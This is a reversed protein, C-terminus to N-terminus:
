DEFGFDKPNLEEFDDQTLELINVLGNIYFCLESKTLNLKKLRVKEQKILKLIKKGRKKPETSYIIGPIPNEPDHMNAIKAFEEEFVREFEERTSTRKKVDEKIAEIETQLMLKAVTFTKLIGASQIIHSYNKEM